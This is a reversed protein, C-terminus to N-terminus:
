AALASGHGRRLVPATIEYQERLRALTERDVAVRLAAIAVGDHTQPLGLPECDWGVAIVNSLFAMHTMMTYERIGNELAYEIIAISLHQRVRLAADRPLGPRTVMRTIEFIQPGRPVGDACLGAFKDGLLHPGESPLLRVSGLHGAAAGAADPVLLYITDDRDYEDIEFEGGTVPLDWKLQDIFVTKRDRHMAALYPVFGSRNDRGIREAKHSTGISQVTATM